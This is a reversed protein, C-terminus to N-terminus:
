VVRWDNSAVYVLGVAGYSSEINIFHEGDIEHAASGTVKINKGSSISKAKVNVIDGVTPSSPLTAVMTGTVDGFYNYGEVLTVAGFANSGSTVSQAQTSLVGGTATIGAGAIASVIDVFSERKILGNSADRFYVSDAQISASVDGAGDLQVTSDFQVGSSATLSTVSVYNTSYVKLPYNGDALRFGVTNAAQDHLRINLDGSSRTLANVIIGYGSSAQLGASAISPSSSTLGGISTIGYGCMNLAEGQTGLSTLSSGVVASGLTTANLVSAGGISVAGGVALTANTGSLIGTSTVNGVNLSSLTGVSTLSSALVTSHLETKSLIETGGIYVGADGGLYLHSSGSIIGSSSLFCQVNGGGNNVTLRGNGDADRGLFILTSSGGQNRVRLAKSTDTSSLNVSVDGASANGGFLTDVSATIGGAAGRGPELILMNGNDAKNRFRVFGAEGGLLSVGSTGSVNTYTNSMLELVEVNPGGFSAQNYHYLGKENAVADMDIGDYRFGNSSGSLTISGNENYTFGADGGFESSNNFQVQTDSGGPDAGVNTLGAGNGSFHSASVYGLFKGASGTLGASSSIIGTSTVAGVGLSSLTGVSTLSSALVTSGLTGRNLVNSGAIKVAAGPGLELGASSSILGSSASIHFTPDDDDTPSVRIAGKAGDVILDIGQEAGVGGYFVLGSGSVDMAGQLATLTTMYASDDGSWVTGFRVVDQLNLSSSQRGAYTGSVFLSASHGTTTGKPNFYLGANGGLEVDSGLYEAFALEYNVDGTSSTIATVAEVNSLGAGNGVFHSASAIGDTLFASGSIGVSSSVIGTATVAGVGLSTLTGVSTLSSAVVASGLTTANLVSAGGFNLSTLNLTDTGGFKVDGGAGLTLDGSGSLAGSSRVGVQAIIPQSSTLGVLTGVSTLSSAAVASGLTTANLVSAGGVSVAGGVALTANTGSLIGTSTVNGVNLSSLTGVSTLSSALVTSGLTTKTLVNATSDLDLALFRGDNSGSIIGGQSLSINSNGSEDDITIAGEQTLAGSLIAAGKQFKYAM